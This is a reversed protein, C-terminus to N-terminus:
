LGSVLFAAWYFPHRGEEIMKLKAAKLANAYSNNKKM